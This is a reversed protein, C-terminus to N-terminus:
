IWKKEGYPYLGSWKEEWEDSGINRCFATAEDRSMFNEMRYWWHPKWTLGMQQGGEFMLHDIVQGLM